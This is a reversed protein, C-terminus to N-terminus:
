AKQGLLLPIAQSFIISFYEGSFYIEELTVGIGQFYFPSLNFACRLKNLDGCHNHYSAAPRRIQDRVWETREKMNMHELAEVWIIDNTRCKWSTGKGKKVASLPMGHHNYDYAYLLARGRKDLRAYVVEWWWPNWKDRRLRRFGVFVGLSVSTFNENQHPGAM